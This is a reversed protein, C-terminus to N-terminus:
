INIKKFNNLGNLWIIFIEHNYIKPFYTLFVNKKCFNLIIETIVENM